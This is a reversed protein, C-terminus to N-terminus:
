LWSGCSRWSSKGCIKDSNTNTRTTRPLIVEMNM